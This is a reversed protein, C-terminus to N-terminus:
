EPLGLSLGPGPRELGLDVVEALDILDISSRGGVREGRAGAPHGFGDREHLVAEDHFAHRRRSQGNGRGRDRQFGHLIVPLGPRIRLIERALDIGTMEPMSQDTIVVDLAGPNERFVALAKASGCALTGSSFDFVEKRSRKGMM